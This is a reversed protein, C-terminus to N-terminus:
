FLPRVKSLIQGAAVLGSLRYRSDFSDAGTGQVYYHGPPIVMPSIPQLSRHDFTQPKAWGVDVGNIFVRRDVVTVHDGPVGAIRKFFPQRRLGPYFKQGEGDFAYVVFDGRHLEAPRAQLVAVTYPLSATWNFLLPVHPTPDGLVRWLALVWIVLVPGYVYRRRRMDAITTRWSNRWASAMRVNAPVAQPAARPVDQRVTSPMAPPQHANM